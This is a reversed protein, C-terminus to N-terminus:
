HTIILNVENGGGFKDAFSEILSLKLGEKLLPSTSEQNAFKAISHVLEKGNGAVGIIQKTADENEVAETALVIISRKAGKANVMEQVEKAFEEVKSLFESKNEEKM